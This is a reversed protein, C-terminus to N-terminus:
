RTYSAGTNQNITNEVVRSGETAEVVIKGRQEIALKHAEWRNQFGLSTNERSTQTDLGGGPAAGSATTATLTKDDMKGWDRYIQAVLRSVLTLPKLLFLIPAFAMELAPGWDGFKEKLYQVYTIMLGIGIVALGVPGMAFLWMARFALGLKGLTATAILAVANYTATGAATAYMVTRVIALAAALQKSAFVYAITTIRLTVLAAIYLYIPTLIWSFWKNIWTLIGVFGTLAKVVVSIAGGTSGSSLLEIVFNNYASKLILLQGVLGAMQKDAMIQAAGGAGQLAKRLGIISESGESMLASAARMGREGFLDKLQGVSVKGAKDLAELTGIFGEFDTIKGQQNVFEKVNIGLDRYVEAANKGPASMNTLLARLLTGSIGAKMGQNAMAGLSASLHEMDFGLSKAQQATNRYAEAMQYVNTNSISASKALVDNVRGLENIEMGMSALVNTAIDAAANIEMGGAAALQLVGPIAAMTETADMGSQALYVMADATATATFATTKGLELAVDRMKSMGETTEGTVASLSNMQTEFSILTGLGQRLALFAGGITLLPHNKLTNKLRGFQRDVLGGASAAKKMYGALGKVGASMQKLPSSFKNTVSIIYSINFAM